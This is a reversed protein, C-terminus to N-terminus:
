TQRQAANWMLWIMEDTLLQRSPYGRVLAVGDCIDQAGRNFMAQTARRTMERVLWVFKELLSAGAGTHGAQFQFQDALIEYRALGRGVVLELIFQRETELHSRSDKQSKSSFGFLSRPAPASGIEVRNIAGAAVLSFDDWSVGTTRGLYDCFVLQEHQLEIRQLTQSVPLLRLEEDKAVAANVGELQLARQLAKAEDASLHRLLIGQANAALRIADADTLHSFTRFARRVADASPSGADKLLIAYQNFTAM